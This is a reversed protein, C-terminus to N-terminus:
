FRRKSLIDAAVFFGGAPVGGLRLGEVSGGMAEGERPGAREGVGDEDDVVFPM